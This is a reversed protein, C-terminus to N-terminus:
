GIGKPKRRQRNIPLAKDAPRTVDITLTGMADNSIVAMVIQTQPDHSDFHSQLEELGSDQIFQPLQSKKLFKTSRDILEIGAYYNVLFVGPEKESSVEIYYSTLHPLDDSVLQQLQQQTDMTM